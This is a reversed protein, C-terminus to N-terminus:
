GSAEGTEDGGEPLRESDTEAPGAAEYALLQPDIPPGQAPLTGFPQLNPQPQALASPNLVTPQSSRFRARQDTSSGPLYFRLTNGASLNITPLPLYYTRPWYAWYEKAGIMLELDSDQFPDEGQSAFNAARHALRPEPAMRDEGAVPYATMLHTPGSSRREVSAGQGRHPITSRGMHTQQHPTAFPSTSPTGGRHQTQAQQQFTQGPAGTYGETMQSHTGSSRPFSQSPRSSLWGPLTDDETDEGEGVTRTRYRAADDNSPYYSQQYAMAPSAVAATALHRLRGNRDQFPTNSYNVPMSATSHLRQTYMNGGRANSSNDVGTFTSPEEYSSALRRVNEELTPSLPPPPHIQEAGSRELSRSDEGTENEM